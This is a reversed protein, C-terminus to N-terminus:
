RRRKSDLWEADNWSIPTAGVPPVALHADDSQILCLMRHGLLAASRAQEAFIDLLAHAAQPDQQFFRDFGYVVLALGTDDRSFGYRCAAVDRLCDNLAAMNRGYYDPFDLVLALDVHMDLATHWASADAQVVRYGHDSLWGTSSGLVQPSWFLTVFGNAALRYDIPHTLVYDLDFAAVPTVKTKPNVSM